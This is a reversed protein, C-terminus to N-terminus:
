NGKGNTQCRSTNDSSRHRYLSYASRFITRGQRLWLSRHAANNCKAKHYGKRCARLRQLGQLGDYDIGNWWNDDLNLKRLYYFMAYQMYDTDILINKRVTGVIDSGGRFLVASMRVVEAEMKCIGPFIDPHLPNTYSTKKYVSAVLDALDDDYNYVAGSVRGEKWKYNGIELYQNVLDLIQEKTFSDYPLKTYYLLGETRKIAEVELEHSIKDIESDIKKRIAPIKRILLFFKKRTRSAVGTGCDFLYIEIVIIM